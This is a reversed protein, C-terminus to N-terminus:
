EEMNNLFNFAIQSVRKRKSDGRPIDSLLEQAIMAGYARGKPSRNIFGKITPDDNYPDVEEFSEWAGPVGLADKLKM